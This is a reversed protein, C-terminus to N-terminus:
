INHIEQILSQCESRLEELKICEKSRNERTDRIDQINRDIEKVSCELPLTVNDKIISNGIDILQGAVENFQSRVNQRNIRLDERLKEADADSKIQLFVSLGIGLFSLVEGAVAIGRAIKIAQWPKFKVGLGKGVKLVLQHINGGSFNTLKLGGKAGAKYANNVVQNGIKSAGESVKSLVNKVSEPLQDFKGQLRVALKQSFESNELREFDKGIENLGNEIAFKAKDECEESIREVEKTYEELSTKVEEQRCGEELLDAAKLGLEKIDAAATTYIDKVEQCISQEGGLLVSRQQRLHEELADIDNDESKPQLEKIQKELEESMLYLRTTLKSAVGNKKVFWNLTEIFQEYGSRNYLEDAIEKDTETISDLYSEADLFCVDFEQPTYPVIVNKLGKGTLLVEQQERCNGLATDAMKNVVLIIEKAKDKDIALKRFHKGMYDDFLGYTIVFVLIDAAAIQAYAIEDHDPRLETHIGPTDVIKLGNWDYEHTQQTVIGGGVAIDNRGTLMRLISSKGASYQGAFVVKVSDSEEDPIEYTHGRSKFALRIKDELAKIRKSYKEIELM